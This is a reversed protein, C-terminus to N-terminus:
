NTLILSANFSISQTMSTENVLKIKVLDGESVRIVPGPVTGGFTWSKYTVGKAIEVTADRIPIRFEKVAATSAPSLRADYVPQTARPTAGFDTVEVRPPGSFGAVALSALVAGVASSTLIRSNMSRSRPQPRQRREN